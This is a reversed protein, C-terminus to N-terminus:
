KEMEVKVSPGKSLNFYNAIGTADAIGLERVFNDDKLRAADSSNTLFAHEVIIGPIGNLKNNRIVSYYDMLSGDDYKSGDTADKFKINRDNLGLSVLQNQIQRALAEGKNHIDANHGRNPYYVEVGNAKATASNMHLSVFIDAGWAKARRAREELEVFTDNDRTMYVTVDNYQELESKCAKAIRLNLDKEM